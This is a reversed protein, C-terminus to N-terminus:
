PPRPSHPLRTCPYSDYLVCYFLRMRCPVFAALFADHPPVCTFAFAHKHHYHRFFSSRRLYMAYLFTRVTRPAAFFPITTTRLYATHTHPLSRHCAVTAHRYRLLPLPLLTVDPLWAVSFRCTLSRPSPLRTFRHLAYYPHIVLLRLPAGHTHTRHYFPLHLPPHYGRVTAFTFLCHVPLICTFALLTSATTHHTYFHASGFHATPM